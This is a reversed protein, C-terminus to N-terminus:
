SMFACLNSILAYKTAKVECVRELTSMWSTALHCNQLVVWTGENIGTQIMKMAIPGQGQGLSLSTLKNGSFGKEDGFKLLAAMPDSGPSLVFILPACCNSDTFATSLNFPPPEIFPQGLRSSVFEQVMPVIQPSVHLVDETNRLTFWVTYVTHEGSFCVKDPRLCRIVMMKQFQNLREQWAGPFPTQHPNLKNYMLLSVSLCFSFLLKDKEFLSRCINVYLAYTFHDRLIELRQELDETKESSDISSIFLNIFWTLSYQYMPEINALDAISFFLIASHVAIPKYGM